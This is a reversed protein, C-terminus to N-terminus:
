RQPQVEAHSPRPPRGGDEPRERKLIKQGERNSALPVWVRLSEAGEPFESIIGTYTLEFQRVSPFPSRAFLITGSLLVAGVLVLCSVKLFRSM